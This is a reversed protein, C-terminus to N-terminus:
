KRMESVAVSSITSRDNGTKARAMSRQMRSFAASVVVYM